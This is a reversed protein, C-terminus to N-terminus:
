NLRRGVKTHVFRIGDLPPSFFQFCSFRSWREVFLDLNWNGRRKLQISTKNNAQPRFTLISQVSVMDVRGASADQSGSRRKDGPRHATGFSDIPELAFVKRFIRRCCSLMDCARSNSYKRSQIQIFHVVFISKYEAFCTDHDHDECTDRRKARWLQLPTTTVIASDYDHRVDYTVHHRHSTVSTSQQITSDYRTSSSIILNSQMTRTEVQLQNDTLWRSIHWRSHKHLEIGVWNM